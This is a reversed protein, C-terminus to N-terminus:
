PPTQYCETYPASLLLFPATHNFVFDHSTLIAKRERNM